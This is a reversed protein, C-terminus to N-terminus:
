PAAGAAEHAADLRSPHYRRLEVRQQESRGVRACPRGVAAHCHPCPVALVIRRAATEGEAQAAAEDPDAGAREAKGRKIAALVRDVGDHILEPDFSARTIAQHPTRERDNPRRRANWWQIVDAVSIPERSALYRESAYYAQMARDAAEFPVEALQRTWLARMFGQSDPQPMKPDLAAVMALFRGTETENM